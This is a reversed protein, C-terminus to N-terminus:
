NNLKKYVRLLTANPVFWGDCGYGLPPIRYTGDEAKILPVMEEDARVVTYSRCGCGCFLFGLTTAVAVVRLLDQFTANVQEKDGTAIAHRDAERKRQDVAKLVRPVLAFLLSVLKKILDLM